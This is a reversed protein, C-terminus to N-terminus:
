IIEIRISALVLVILDIVCRPRNWCYRTIYASTSFRRGCRRHLTVNKAIFFFNLALSQEDGFHGPQCLPISLVHPVKDEWWGCTNRLCVFGLHQSMCWSISFWIKTVKEQLGLHSFIFDLRRWPNCGRYNCSGEEIPFFQENLTWTGELGQLSLIVFKCKWFSQLPLNRLLSADNNPILASDCWPAGSTSSQVRWSKLFLLVRM